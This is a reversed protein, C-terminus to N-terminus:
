IIAYRMETELVSVPGDGPPSLLRVQWRGTLVSTMEGQTSGEVDSTLSPSTDAM